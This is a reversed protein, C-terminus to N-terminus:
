KKNYLKFLELIFNNSEKVLHEFKKFRSQALPWVNMRSAQWWNADFQTHCEVCLYLHNTIVYEVSKFTHKPLIHANNASTCEIKKGCNECKVWGLQNHLFHYEQLDTM